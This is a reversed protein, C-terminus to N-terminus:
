RSVQRADRRQEFRRRAMVVDRATEVSVNQERAVRAVDADFAAQREQAALRQRARYRRRTPTGWGSWGDDAYGNAQAFESITM